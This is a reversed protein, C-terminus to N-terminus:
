LVNGAELIPLLTAFLIFGVFVAITVILIPELMSALRTAATSVQRDYNTALRDLMEELRGTQQGVAFVQIVMPPFVESAELAQSIDQGTAVAQGSKELAERIVLNKTSRSAIELASLYVIGSRILTAMILAVCSLSQKVIMPGLIPFRLLSRHLTRKAQPKQLLAAGGAGTAIFVLLLWWGHQILLDSMGKLVVTPWPLPRGAEILNTLLMPVVVSMLFACVILSIVLVILPYMMATLVHDKLELSKEKFAALHELVHDLNGSEEGVEVLRITLTDFITPECEMAEALSSGAAVRDRVTMIAQLFDGKEQKCLTELADTLPIGVVLLTALERVFGTLKASSKRRSRGFLARRQAAANASMQRISLGQERLLDRAQKATDAAISGRIARGQLNVANYTFVAM